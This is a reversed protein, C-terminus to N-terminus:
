VRLRLLNDWCAACDGVDVAVGQFHTLGLEGKQSQMLYGYIKRQIALFHKREDEYEKKEKEYAALRAADPTNPAIPATKTYQSHTGELVDMAQDSMMYIAAVTKQKYAAWNSGDFEYVAVRTSTTTTEEM